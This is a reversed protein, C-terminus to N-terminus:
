MWYINKQIHTGMKEVTGFSKYIIEKMKQENFNGVIKLVMNSPKYYKNYHKNLQELTFKKNNQIFYFDVPYIHEEELSFAYHYMDIVSPFITSAWDVFSYFYNLPEHYWMINGIEIQLARREVELDYEDIKKDFIMNSFTEVLWYSKKSEITALYETLYRSTFGYVYTAGHHQLYHVYKNKPVREDRFILHELLHSIGANDNNELRTGVNVEVSIKTKSSHKDCLMHVKMGNSLTFFQQSKSSGTVNSAFLESAMFFIFLIAKLYITSISNTIPTPMAINISKTKM